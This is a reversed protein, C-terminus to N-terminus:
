GDNEVVGIYPLNRYKQDYDLGFGVVFKDPVSFGCYDIKVDKVRREPKELLAALKISAPKELGLVEMLATLTYGTDVIDEVVIVHRGEINEEHDRKIKINGTSVMGSGYSSVQMFDITVPVTISQSLETLFYVAGKLICILVVSKGEYDRSIEVGLEKIRNKLESESILTSITDKM